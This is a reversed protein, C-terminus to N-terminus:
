VLCAWASVSCVAVALPWVQIVTSSSRSVATAGGELSPMGMSAFSFLDGGGGGGGFDGFLGGGVGGGFLGGGFFGGGFPFGADLGGRGRGRGRDRDRDRDRDRRGDGFFPDGFFDDFFGEFPDQWLWGCAFFPALQTRLRTLTPQSPSVVHTHTLSLPTAANPITGAIVCKCMCACLCECGAARAAPAMHLSGHTIFVGIAPHFSFFGKDGSTRVYGAGLSLGSSTTPM